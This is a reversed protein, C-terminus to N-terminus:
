FKSCPRQVALIVPLNVSILVWNLAFKKKWKMNQKKKDLKTIRDTGWFTNNNNNNNKASFLDSRWQGPRFYVRRRLDCVTGQNKVFAGRTDIWRSFIRFFYSVFYVNPTFYEKWVFAGQPSRLLQSCVPHILPIWFNDITTSSSYQASNCDAFEEIM